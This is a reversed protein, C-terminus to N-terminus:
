LMWALLNCHPVAIFFNFCEPSGEGKLSSGPFCISLALLDIAMWFSSSWIHPNHTLICLFFCGWLGSWSVGHLLYSWYSLYEHKFKLDFSVLFHLWLQSISHFRRLPLLQWRFSAMKRRWDSRCDALRWKWPKLRIKQKRNFILVCVFASSGTLFVCGSISQSWFIFLVGLSGVILLVVFLFFAIILDLSSLFVYLFFGFGSIM